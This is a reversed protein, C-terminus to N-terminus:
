RVTRGLAADPHETLWTKVKDDAVAKWLAKNASSDLNVISQVGDPSRGTGAVPATLFTLDDGRVSRMSVALSRMKGISFGDDASISSTLSGLVANLKLPSTLTGKDLTKLAVARIWNQQRKVRDFDGGPLNHRQRVYKLATDGDMTQPGAAFTSREDSTSRAVNIRVGDLDDTIDKFGEFDVIVVHDIRVGTFKEVTKVMLTPGGFSFGANIKNKGHGPVTVWSDRPISTVTLQSRDAPIHAIMIADTRQAGRIWAGPDTSIRSDSGLLLINMAGTAAVKPREAEVLPGFPDAFREINQDLRHQVYLFAGVGSGGLLLGIALVIGLLWFALRGRRRRKPTGPGPPTTVTRDPPAAGPTGAGPETGVPETDATGVPNNPSHETSMEDLRSV